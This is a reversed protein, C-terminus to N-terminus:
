KLCPFAAKAPIVDTQFRPLSLVIRDEQLKLHKMGGPFLIELIRCLSGQCLKFFLIIGGSQPLFSERFFLNASIPDCKLSLLHQNLFPSDRGGRQFTHGGPM